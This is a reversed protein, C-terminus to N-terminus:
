EIPTGDATLAATLQVVLEEATDASFPRGDILAVPRGQCAICLRLCPVPLVRAGCREIGERLTQAAEPQREGQPRCLLVHTAM